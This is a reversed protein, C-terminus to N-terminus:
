GYTQGKKISEPTLDICYEKSKGNGNPFVLKLKIPPKDSEKSRPPEDEIAGTEEDTVDWSPKMPTLPDEGGTLIGHLSLMSYSWIEATNKEVPKEATIKALHLIVDKMEPSLHGSIGYIELFAPLQEDGIERRVISVWNILNALLSVRPVSQNSEKRLGPYKNSRNEFLSDIGAMLPEGTELIDEMDVDDIMGSEEPTDSLKNFSEKSKDEELSTKEQTIILNDSDTAETNILYDRISSLTEKLEGKLLKLEDEITQLQKATDM